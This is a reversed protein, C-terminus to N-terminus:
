CIRRLGILNTCSRPSSGRVESKLPRREVSQALGTCTTTNPSGPPTSGRARPNFARQGVTEPKFAGPGDAVSIRRCAAGTQDQHVYHDGQEHQHNERVTDFRPRGTIPRASQWQAVPSIAPAEFRPDGAHRAPAKVALGVFRTHHESWSEFRPIDTHLVSAKAAQRLSRRACPQHPPQACVFITCGSPSSGGRRQPPRKQPPQTQRKAVLANMSPAAVASRVGTEAKGFRHGRGSSSQPPSSM